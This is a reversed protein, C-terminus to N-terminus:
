PYTLEFTATASFDGPMIAQQAIAIPEGQVYAQITLKNSGNAIAYEPTPQNFPLAAGEPTEM